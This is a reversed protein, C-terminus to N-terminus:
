PQQRAGECDSHIIKGDRDIRGTTGINWFTTTGDSYRAGGASPTQQLQTDGSATTLTAKGEEEFSVAFQYGDPCSFKWRKVSSSEAALSDGPKCEGRFYAWDDCSSGDNFRCVGAEGADSKVIESAGEHEACYVAAPNSLETSEPEPSCAALVVFGVAALLARPICLHHVLICAAITKM